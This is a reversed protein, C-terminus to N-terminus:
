VEIWDVDLIEVEYQEEVDKLASELQKRCLLRNSGVVGFGLVAKNHLDWEDVEATTLHHRNRIRHVISKVTSRKDKLSYSDFILITLEVGMLIM